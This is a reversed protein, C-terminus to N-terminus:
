GSPLHHGIYFQKCDGDAGYMKCISETFKKEDNLWKWQLIAWIITPFTRALTTNRHNKHEVLVMEKHLNKLQSMPAVSGKLM